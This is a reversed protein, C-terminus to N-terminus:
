KLGVADRSVSALFHRLIVDFVKEEAPEFKDAARLMKVPHIPPHAKDDKKAKRAGGWRKLKTDLLNSSFVGIESDPEVFDGVIVRLNM